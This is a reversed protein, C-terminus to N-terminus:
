AFDTKQSSIAAHIGDLVLQPLFFVPLQRQIEPFVMEADGGTLLLLPKPSTLDYFRRITGITSHFIGARIADTTNKGPFPSGGELLKATPLQATGRRLSKAALSMGPLIAGGLFVDDPSVLDVTIATGLDCLLMPTLSDKPRNERKWLVAAYAALLRDIGVQEPCDVATKLPLNKAQLVTITDDPRKRRIQESIKKTKAPCVSGIGWHATEGNTCSRIVSSITRFRRVEGRQYLAFKVRCNGIDVAFLPFGISTSARKAPVRHLVNNKM